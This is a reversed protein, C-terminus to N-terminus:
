CDEVYPDMVFWFVFVSVFIYTDPLPNVINKLHFCFTVLFMGLSQLTILDFSLRVSCYSKQGM